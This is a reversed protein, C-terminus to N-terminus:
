FIVMNRNNSLNYLVAECRLIEREFLPGSANMLGFIAAYRCVKAFTSRPIMPIDALIYGVGFEGIMTLVSIIIKRTKEKNMDM